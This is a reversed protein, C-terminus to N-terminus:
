FYSNDTESQIQHSVVVKQIPFLGRTQLAKSIIKAWNIFKAEFKIARAKQFLSPLLLDLGM